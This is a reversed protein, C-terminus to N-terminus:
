RSWTEAEEIQRLAKKALARNMWNRPGRRHSDSQIYNYIKTDMPPPSNLIKRHQWKSGKGRELFNNRNTLLQVKPLMFFDQSM